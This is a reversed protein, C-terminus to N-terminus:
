IILKALGAPVVVGDITDTENLIRIDPAGYKDFLEKIMEPTYATEDFVIGKIKILGLKHLQLGAKYLTKLQIFCDFKGLMKDITDKKNECFGVGDVLGWLEKKIPSATNYKDLDSKIQVTEDSKNVGYQGPDSTHILSQIFVIPNNNQTVILDFSWTKGKEKKVIEFTSLDVNPDRYGIAKKYREEPVISCGLSHLLKALEFEAGHGRRKAEAQQVEKTLILKEILSEIEQITLKSMTSVIDILGKDILYQAILNASEEALPRNSSKVLNKFYSLPHKNLEFFNGGLVNKDPLHKSKTKAFVYSMELYMRKDSVGVLTRLIDVLEIDSKIATFLFEVKDSVKSFDLFLKALKDIDLSKDIDGAIPIDSQDAVHFWFENQPTNTIM